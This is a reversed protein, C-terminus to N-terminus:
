TCGDIMDAPSHLKLVSMIAELAAVTPPPNKPPSSKPYAMLFTTLSIAMIAPSNM